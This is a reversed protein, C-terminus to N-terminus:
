KVSSSHNDASHPADVDYFPSRGDNGACSLSTNRRLVSNPSTGNRLSVTLGNLLKSSLIETVLRTTGVIGCRLM